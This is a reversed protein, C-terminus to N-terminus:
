AHDDTRDTTATIVIPQDTDRLAASLRDLADAMVRREDDSYRNLRVDDASNDLMFAAQSMLQATHKNHSM